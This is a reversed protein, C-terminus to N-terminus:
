PSGESTQKNFVKGLQTPAVAVRLCLALQCARKLPNGGNTRSICQSVAGISFPSNKHTNQLLDRWPMYFEYKSSYLALTKLDHWKKCTGSHTRWHATSPYCPHHCIATYCIGGLAHPRLSISPHFAKCSCTCSFVSDNSFKCPSTCSINWTCSIHPIPVAMWLLTCLLRSGLYPHLWGILISLYVWAHDCGDLSHTM